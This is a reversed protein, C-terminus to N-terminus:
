LSMTVQLTLKSLTLHLQFSVCDSKFARIFTFFAVETLKLLYEWAWLLIDYM